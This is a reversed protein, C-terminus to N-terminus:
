TNGNITQHPDPASTRINEYGGRVWQMIDKSFFILIGLLPLVIAAIILLKELGESGREDRYLRKLSAAIRAFM